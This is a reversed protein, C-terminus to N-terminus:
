KEEFSAEEVKDEKKSESATADSEPQVNQYVKAALDMAVKSLEESKEKIKDVDSGALLEKLEKILEEAKEKDKSDVKDGLDELAKETQFVM